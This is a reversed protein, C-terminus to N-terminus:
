LSTDPHLGSLIEYVRFVPLGMVNYYDGDIKQIGVMGIWEQIGYAGAKDMPKYERIYHRIEDSRLTRFHVDTSESFIYQRDKYQICVGTIVQHVKGSLQALMAEAQEEHAPKGLIMGESIVITDAALIIQDQLDPFRSLLYKCKKQALLEAAREQNWGEPVSEDIAAARVEIHPVIASLLSFRRPSQSALIMRKFGIM